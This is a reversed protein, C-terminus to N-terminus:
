LWIKGHVPESNESNQYTYTCPLLDNYETEAKHEAVCKFGRKMSYDSAM